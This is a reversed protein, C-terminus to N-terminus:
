LMKVAYILFLSRFYNHFSHPFTPIQRDRLISCLLFRLRHSTCLRWINSYLKEMLSIRM